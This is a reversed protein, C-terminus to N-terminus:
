QETNVDYFCEFLDFLIEGVFSIFEIWKNLVFLFLVYNGDMYKFIKNKIEAAINNYRTSNVEYKKGRYRQASKTSRHCTKM